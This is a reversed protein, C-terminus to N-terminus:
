NRGEARRAREERVIELADSLSQDCLAGFFDVLQAHVTAHYVDDDDNHHRSIEIDMTLSTAETVVEPQIPAEIISTKTGPAIKRLLAGLEDGVEAMADDAVSIRMRLTDGRKVELHTLPVRSRSPKKKSRPMTISRDEIRATRRAKGVATM